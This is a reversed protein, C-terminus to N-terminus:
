GGSEDISRERYKELLGRIRELLERSYLNGALRDQVRTGLQHMEQRQNLTSPVIEMGQRVLELYADRNDSRSKLVLERLRTRSKDIVMDRLEPSLEDLTKRDVLVAGIAYTFPIDSIYQLRTFWQLVLAALPSSYVADIMGTQISLHVDTVPLPIPAKQLEKFFAEALPDGQWMWVKTGKLHAPEAVPKNALFYVWGVDAWGLLYFGKEIFAEQIYDDLEALTYDIENENRFIYPLELVRIEPLVEGLGLGTFGAANVQGLKIKLIVDKEDGMAMNPYFKFGVEGGSSERIEEDLARMTQMWTSGEPALTAFRIVKMSYGDVCISAVLLLIATLMINLPYKRRNTLM